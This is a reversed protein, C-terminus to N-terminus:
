LSYGVAMGIGGGGPAGPALSLRWRPEEWALASGGSRWERYQEWRGEASSPIILNYLGYTVGTVGFALCGYDPTPTPARYALLFLGGTVLSAWGWLRRSSRSQEGFQWLRNEGIFVKERIEAANGAPIGVFEDFYRERDSAYFLNTVGAITLGGGSLVFEAGVTFGFMAAIPKAVSYALGRALDLSFRGSPPPADSNLFDITQSIIQVGAVALPVGVAISVGAGLFRNARNVSALARLEGTVKRLREPDSRSSAVATLPVEGPSGERPDEAHAALPLLLFLLVSCRRRLGM